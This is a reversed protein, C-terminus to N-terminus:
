VPLRDDAALEIGLQPFTQKRDARLARLGPEVVLHDRRPVPERQGREGLAAPPELPGIQEISRAVEGREEVAVRERAGLAAAGRSSAITPEGSSSIARITSSSHCGFATTANPGACLM